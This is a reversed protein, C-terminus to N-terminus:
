TRSRGCCRRWTTTAMSASRAAGAAAPRRPALRASVGSRLVADAVPRTDEPLRDACGRAGGPGGALRAQVGDSAAGSPRMTSRNLPLRPITGDGARAGPANGGHPPRARSSGDVARRHGALVPEPPENQALAVLSGTLPHGDAPASRRRHRARLLARARRADAGVNRGRQARPGAAPRARVHDGGASQYELWGVLPPVRTFGARTLYSGIEIEPNPGADLRRLLKLHKRKGYAISSNPRETASRRIPHLTAPDDPLWAETRVARITGHQGALERSSAFAELLLDCAATTSSPMSSCARAPVPSARSCRARRPRRSASPTPGTVTALPLLYSTAAAM